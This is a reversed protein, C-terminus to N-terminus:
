WRLPDDVHRRWSDRQAQRSRGRKQRNGKRVERAFELFQAARHLDAVTAKAIEDRLWRVILERGTLQPV